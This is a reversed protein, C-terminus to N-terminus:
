WRAAPLHEEQEPSAPDALRAEQGLEALEGGAADRPQLAAAERVAGLESYPGSMWISRPQTPTSSPSGSSDTRM